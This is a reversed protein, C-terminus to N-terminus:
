FEYTNQWSLMFHFCIFLYFVTKNTSGRIPFNLITLLPWPRVRLRPKKTNSPFFGNKPLNTVFVWFQWNLSFYPVSVLEFICLEIPINRKEKRCQFFGKKAFKTFFLSITMKLQFKCRCDHEYYKSVKSPEVFKGKM